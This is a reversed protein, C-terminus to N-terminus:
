GGLLPQDYYFLVENIEFIDYKGNVIFYEIIVDFKKGPSIAYGAQRLLNETEELTLEMAVALAIVTRKSPVYDKGTRIKSFLKRDINARKYVEADTKGKSDILRMLKTSFPADLKDILKELLDPKPAPRSELRKDLQFSQEPASSECVWDDKPPASVDAELKPLALSQERIDANSLYDSRFVSAREAEDVYREDIYSKVNGLLSQNITFSDKDFVSLYIELENEDLYDKITQTAVQLATAKPYGYIGSSILPFAISECGNGGALKLSNIYCARLLEEEGQNGNQYIPGAAHIIHKAHLNFGQTIVAEGTKIPSLLNCAVQLEAAGAAEFIEGCVGGGMQLETNAANVIADVKMKTIDERIITFPM